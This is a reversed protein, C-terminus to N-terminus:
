LTSFKNGDVSNLKQLEGKVREAEVKFNAIREQAHALLKKM